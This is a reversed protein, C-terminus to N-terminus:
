KKKLYAKKIYVPKLPKDRQDRPVSAIKQAVDMGKIVYGFVTYAGDLQPLDDLAIYFQSGSSERRPNVQDPLRAMAVAGKTHKLNIEAPITYGPGGTGDGKPDGGQIVFGPIVRHFTLGNYFGQKVLKIFNEVTKPAADPRLEIEINGFDTELVVVPHETKKEESKAEKEKCGAVFLLMASLIITLYRM